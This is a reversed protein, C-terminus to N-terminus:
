PSATRYFRSSGGPMNTDMISASNSVANTNSGAVSQWSAQALNTTAEVHYPFGPQTDFTVLVGNSVNFSLGTISHTPPLFTAVQTLPGNLTVQTPNNTGSYSGNGTGQWRNFLFGNSAIATLNLTTGPNSWQSTAAVYGGPGNSISLLYQPLYSVTYNTNANPNIGHTVLGADSWASFVLQTGPGITQTALGGLTHGSGAPWTFATLNSYGIGDVLFGAGAPTSQVAVTVLNSILTFNFLSSDNQVDPTLSNSVSLSGVACGNKCRAWWAHEGILHNLNYGAINVNYATANTLPGAGGLISIASPISDVINLNNLNLGAIGQYNYNDMVIQLASRWGYGGDYGGCRLLDCRQVTNTGGFTYSVPFTTSILIGCGYPFDTFLSDEIRNDAGGYLAGGNALFPVMGTCHSILNNGPLYSGTSPAPWVAFCDDGTGRATCNTVLTNQMAYNVNIGDALTNRFRCSDVVLGSSNFIWAAAKTHEIWLRSIVSGTGYSGGLGDNGESDNRYNLCGTIAFDTLKINSGGGNLNVRRAATGYLAASGVLRSYWMGAGNIQTNAALNLTGTILYTGPPIWVSKNLTHSGNICNQFATTCDTTGDGVAGYSAVSVSNAPASQAAPVNEVDVLDIVYNTATDGADKQLRIVTGAPLNFGNTRVEDFFNRPSGAAPNNTFPYNGYLWSYRSTLPLRAALTGNTYLGLSYDAGAGNGTDPVSYRVVLATGPNQNTFQIFQGTGNLQVCKRGSAEAPITFPTYLPGQITAGGGVVQAEAEYTIWPVAAGTAAPISTTALMGFGVALAFWGPQGWKAAFGSILPSCFYSM